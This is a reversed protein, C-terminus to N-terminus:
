KMFMNVILAAACSAFFSVLFDRAIQMSGGEDLSLLTGVCFEVSM